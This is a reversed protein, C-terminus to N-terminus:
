TCHRFLSCWELIFLSSLSAQLSDYFCDSKIVRLIFQYNSHFSQRLCECLYQPFCQFALQACIPKLPAALKRPDSLLLSCSPASDRVRPWERLRLQSLPLQQQKAIDTSFSQGQDFAQLTPLRDRVLTSVFGTTRSQRIQVEVRLITWSFSCRGRRWKWSKFCLVSILCLEWKMQLGM